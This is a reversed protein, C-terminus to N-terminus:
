LVEHKIDEEVAEAKVTDTAVEEKITGDGGEELLDDMIMEDEGGNIDEVEDEEDEDGVGGGPIKRKKPGHEMRHTELEKDMTEQLNMGENNAKRAKRANQWRELEKEVNGLCQEEIEKQYESVEQRRAAKWELFTREKQQEVESTDEELPKVPAYYIRPEAKTRIFNSLKKQHESWQLFLLELKKQEAKAAVRARLTLDRRRKETLNEREQLRLRESEERAKEEARQLAATRRAYADTGSRQKDEKRFKELTGLLNGLMRRNRNVLKPDENKPLVRPAPEPLAFAEYRKNTRRQEADRQSWSGRHLGSQKKDSQDSTGNEGVKVQTGNGDVPFEGDKSVDEGDVKVVASSLRRKAPPEDEVDNREAPRPFARRGQNRPAVNSFGGRRLGRPDRLRETIERQQRHLEDIEHRLEEATKELATDGM